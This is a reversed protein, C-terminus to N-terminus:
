FPIHHKDIFYLVENNYEFIDSIVDNKNFEQTQVYFKNGKTMTIRVENHEFIYRIYGKTIEVKILHSFAHNKHTIDKRFDYFMDNDYNM